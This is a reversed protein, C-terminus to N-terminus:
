KTRLLWDQMKKDGRKLQVLELRGVCQVEVDWSAFGFPSSINVTKTFIVEKLSAIPPCEVAKPAM